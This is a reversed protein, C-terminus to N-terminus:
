YTAYLALLAADWLAFASFFRTPLLLAIGAAGFILATLGAKLGFCRGNFTLAEPTLKPTTEYNIACRDNDYYGLEYISWLSLFLAALGIIDAVTSSASLGILIWPLLNYIVLHRLAGQRPRKVRSLYDGPLYALGDFARKFVADKWVTLCPIKCVALLDADTNSDTIVMSQTIVDRDHRDDLLALKGDRRHNFHRLHCCVLKARPLDFVRIMPRILLGYGNSIIIVPGAQRQLLIRLPQN